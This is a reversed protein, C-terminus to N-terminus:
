ILGSEGSTNHPARTFSMIYLFQINVGPNEGAFGTGLKIILKSCSLNIPSVFVVRRTQIGDARITAHVPKELGGLGEDTERQGKTEISIQM